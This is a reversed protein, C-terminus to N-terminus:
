VCSALLTTRLNWTKRCTELLAKQRTVLDNPTWGSANLVQSTLAFPSTGKRSFYEAKKREFAYNQAQSNKARSLLVLNALRDTWLDRMEKDPFLKVWEGDEAPTQPLVHEVSVIRHDYTASGDSVAEDLRLLVPMRIRQIEYIPGDLQQLVAKDESDSLHVPSDSGLVDGGSDIWQILDAYRGIRKNINHRLIFMGYALTDMASLFAAVRVPEQSFKSLFLITPPQWDANDLMALHRLSRNIREADKTSEFDQKVIWLYAVSMPKLIQDVFGKADKCPEVYKHFEAELTAALKARRHIMRIHAFLDRFHERGLDEEITEWIDTYTERESEEDIAGIIDAKLIDTPSLDLGRDNMVSFVRYASHKDSTEVVVLFGRRIMFTLLCQRTDFDLTDVHKALLRANEAIRMQADNSNQDTDPLSKTAGKCQINTEFFNAERTRLRPRDLTGAFPDGEEVVYHQAKGALGNNLRDRLVCILLTLTTLRQQGDVVDAEPMEPKKILVISGMFYPSAESPDGAGMALKLDDFLEGAEETTWAYPRQYAPISFRFKDCFVDVLAKESAKITNEAM